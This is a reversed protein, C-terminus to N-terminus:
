ETEATESGIKAATGGEAVCERPSWYVEGHADKAEKWVPAASAACGMALALACQALRECQPAGPGWPACTSPGMPPVCTGDRRASIAVSEREHELHNKFVTQSFDNLFIM